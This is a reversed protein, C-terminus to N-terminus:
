YEKNKSDIWISVPGDNVLSVQMMAGFSGTQVRIGSASIKTIFQKYLPQAIEPRAARIYSPRNGKKTAAHLTFQSVILLEGAIDQISCNMVGATDDFIRLQLVKHVLYDIDSETDLSEIGIFLLLGMGIQGYIFDSDSKVVASTVRQILLRM